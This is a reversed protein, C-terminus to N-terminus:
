FVVGRCSKQFKGRRMHHPINLSLIPQFVAKAEDPWISTGKRFSETNKKNQARPCFKGPINIKCLNKVLHFKKLPINGVHNKKRSWIEM